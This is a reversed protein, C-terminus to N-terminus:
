EPGTKAKMRPNAPRNAIMKQFTIKQSDTLITAVEENQKTNVIVEQYRIEDRNVASTRLTDRQKAYKTNIETLATIQEATLELRAALVVTRRNVREELTPAKREATPAGDRPSPPAKQAYASTTATLMVLFILLKKMPIIKTIYVVTPRDPIDFTFKQLPNKAVLV